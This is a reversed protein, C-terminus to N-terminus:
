NNIMEFIDMLSSLKIKVVVDSDKRPRIRIPQMYNPKFHNTRNLDIGGLVIFAYEGNIDVIEGWKKGSPLGFENYSRYVAFDGIKFEKYMTNPKTPATDELVSM